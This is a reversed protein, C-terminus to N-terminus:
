IGPRGGAGLMQRHSEFRATPLNLLHAGKRLANPQAGAHSPLSSIISLRLTGATPRRVATRRSNDPIATGRSAAHTGLTGVTTAVCGANGACGVAAGPAVAMAAGAGAPWGFLPPVSRMPM